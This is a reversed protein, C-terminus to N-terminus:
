AETKLDQTGIRGWGWARIQPQTRKGFKLTANTIGNEGSVQRKLGSAQGRVEAAWNEGRRRLLNRM